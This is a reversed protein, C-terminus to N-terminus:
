PNVNSWVFFDGSEFGDSFISAECGEPVSFDETEDGVNITGAVADVGLGRKAFGRWIECQNAGGNNVMDAMLIGDRADVFTPNCGHMKMGDIVLQITLNNGGDGRYFDADFGYRTRLEWYMENVMSMWIEGVGHPVNTAAINSYTQPNVLMDTTYPFNRIGLGGPGEFTLYTGVGKEDTPEDDAAANLLITWFDSWGEGAQETGSLCGSNAPGGSLRNSIGHGYEHAIVGNDFDSDRNIPNQLKLTANVGPTPLEAKILDGNSQGIFVSSITVQDGVAGAGMNITGDGQNNVVIAAIAGANEANLVKVGFECAGRDILAVNGPTFGVLAQCGDTFTGAGAEDDQDDVLEVDGTIGTGDLQPGFAAGGAPYDGAIGGPSNVTLTPPPTWIFMQMRGSSGDPPTAFNANNTGSGDQADAEVEDTGNGLGTYNFTQFNGSVEDFGYHWTLDHIINNWYFLNTIAAFLNDGEGPQTNPDFVFNFSLPTGPGGDPRTGGSNNADLDEQANVNNGRTDTFDYDLDGDTDHWGFPSADVDAPGVELSQPADDPSGAPLPFVLYEDAPPGGLSEYNTWNNRSLVDGSSADVRINWWDPTDVRNIVLDWVLRVTGDELPQYMLKAPIPDRSIGADSLEVALSAGGINRLMFPEAKLSTGLNSAASAVAAEPAIAPSVGNVKGALDSVFDNHLNIIEGKRTVNIAIVGNFVEIGQHRQRLYIHTVGNHGTQYHDTVVFDALDAETLGLEAQQSKLFSMALDMPEGVQPGTLFRIPSKNSDSAALPAAMAVCIALALTLYRANSPRM